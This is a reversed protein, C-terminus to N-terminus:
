ESVHAKGAARDIADQDWSSQGGIRVGHYILMTRTGDVKLDQMAELLVLDAQDRTCIQSWYLKDHIVAAPGYIGWPPIQCWLAAPTSAFDTVFGKEVVIQGLLNSRYILPFELTWNIGDCTQTQPYPRVV